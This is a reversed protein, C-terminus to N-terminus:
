PLTHGDISCEPQESVANLSYDGGSPCVPFQKSQLFPLLDAKKPVTDDAKNNELAWDKKARDIQRLNAICKNRQAVNKAKAAAPLAIAALMSAPVVASVLFLTGPHQNGNAVGLWGQETNGGVSYLYAGANKDLLTELWERQSASVSSALARRQIDGITKGFRQSLFTFQNGSAPTERALRKFEATSKLGPVTGAKVALAEQILLDSTAIFLYGEGTAVTPALPFPLPLPVTVTRMKLNPKDTRFVTHGSKDLATDIRNFISDDKTKAVIMLSPEPIELPDEGGPLPIRVMKSENLGLVLGYEGGLSALVQDWKLGTAKEFREPLEKFLETAQPFGSQEAQRQITSWLLPVDLDCFTALATNTSLLNLADLPHPKQGFLSWLFGSGHGPYHHVLVKSHYFGKERAISSVGLGSINELGSSKILNTVINVAKDITERADDPLDPISGLLQRWNSIKASLGDLWQETGLYLYLNGGPDLQATVEQFSTKEAFANTVAAGGPDAATTVSVTSLVLSVLLPVVFLKM